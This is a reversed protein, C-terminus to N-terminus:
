NIIGTKYGVANRFFDRTPGTGWSHVSVGEPRVKIELPTLPHVATQGNEHDSVIALRDLNDLANFQRITESVQSIATNSIYANVYINCLEQMRQTDDALSLAYIHSQLSKDLPTYESRSISFPIRILQELLEAHSDGIPVDM